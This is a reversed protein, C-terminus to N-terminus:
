LKKRISDLVKKAETSREFPKDLEDCPYHICFACNKIKKGMACKRVPCIDCWSMHQGDETCGVCDRTEPDFTLEGNSWKSTIREIVGKDGQQIALYAPCALCDMGCFSIKEDM